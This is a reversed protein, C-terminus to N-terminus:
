TRTGVTETAIRWNNAWTNQHPKGPRWNRLYYQWAEDQTTPLPKPDIWLLMRAVICALRDHGEITRWVTDTSSVVELRSCIDNVVKGAKAHQLVGQVGIKEFQWFGRAPGPTNSPANQYRAALLPGSEQMAIALLLTRVEDSVAPGQYKALYALSDDIIELLEAPSM